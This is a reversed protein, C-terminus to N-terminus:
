CFKVKGLTRIVSIRINSQRHTLLKILPDVLLEAKVYFSPTANQLLQIADCTVLLIDAYPDTLNKLIIKIIDNYFSMLFDLESDRCNFKKILECLQQLLQLRVEESEEVTESQGIRNRLVPVIIDLHRSSCNPCNNIFASVISAALSRCSEFKDNYCKIVPLYFIDFLEQLDSNEKKISFKERVQQLAMQRIQKDLSQLNKCLLENNHNESLIEM